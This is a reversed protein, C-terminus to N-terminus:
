QNGQQDRIQKLRLLDRKLQQYKAMHEPNQSIALKNGQYMQALTQLDQNLAAAATTLEQPTMNPKIGQYVQPNDTAWQQPPAPREEPPLLPPQAQQWPPQTTDPTPIMGRSDYSVTSPMTPTITGGGTQAQGAGRFQALISDEQQMAELVAKNYAAPDIKEETLFQTDAIKRAREYKALLNKSDEASTDKPPKVEEPNYPEWMNDKNRQGWVRRGNIERYEHQGINQNPKEKIHIRGGPEQIVIFDKMDASLQQLQDQLTPPQKMEYGAFGLEIKDKANQKTQNDWPANNVHELLRDKERMKLEYAHESLQIKHQQQQAAMRQREASEAWMMDAKFAQDHATAEESARIQENLRDRAAQQAMAQSYLNAQRNAEAMARQQAMQNYALALQERRRDFEALGSAYAGQGLLRPDTEHRIVFAM